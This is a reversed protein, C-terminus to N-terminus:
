FCFNIHVTIFSCTQGQHSLYVSKCSTQQHASLADIFKFNATRKEGKHGPEKLCGAAINGSWWLGWCWWWRWWHKQCDKQQAVITFLCGLWFLPEINGKCQLERRCSNQLNLRVCRVLLICIRWVMGICKRYHQCPSYSLCDLPRKLQHDNGENEQGCINSEPTIIYLFFDISTVRSPWIFPNVSVKM